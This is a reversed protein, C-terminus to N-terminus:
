SPLVNLIAFTFRTRLRTAKVGGSSARLTAPPGLSALSWRFARAVVIGSGPLPRTRHEGHRRCVRTQVNVDHEARFSANRQDVGCPPGVEVGIDAAAQFPEVSERLSDSADGIVHMEQCTDFRRM